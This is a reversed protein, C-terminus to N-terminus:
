FIKRVTITKERQGSCCHVMKLGPCDINQDSNSMNWKPSARLFIIDCFRTAAITVLTSVFTSIFQLQFGILLCFWKRHDHCQWYTIQQDHSILPTDCQDCNRIYVSVRRQSAPSYNRCNSSMNLGMWGLRSGAIRLMDGEVPTGPWKPGSLNGM